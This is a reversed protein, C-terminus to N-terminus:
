VVGFKAKLERLPQEIMWDSDSRWRKKEADYNDPYFWYLQSHNRVTDMTFVQLSPLYQWLTYFLRHEHSPPMRGWILVGNADLLDIYIPFPPANELSFSNFLRYRTPDDVRPCYFMKTSTVDFISRDIQARVSEIYNETLALVKRSVSSQSLSLKEQLVTQNVNANATLERLIQLDVPTLTSIEKSPSMPQIHDSTKAIAHTWEEWDYDWTMTKSDFKQLNTRTSTRHGTSRRAEVVECINLRSLEDLFKHLNGVGDSPIDFQAFLGTYPGYTRVRYHTYPHVDCAVELVELDNESTAKLMVVHRELGLRDPNFVAIPESLVREERLRKIHRNATIWSVGTKKALEQVSITPDLEIIHLLELDIQSLPVRM